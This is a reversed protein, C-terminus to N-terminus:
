KVTDDKPRCGKVSTGSVGNCEETAACDEQVTCVKLCELVEGTDGPAGCVSGEECEGEVGSEGCEEGLASEGGCAWLGGLMVVTVLVLWHKAM